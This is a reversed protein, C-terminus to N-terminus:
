EEDEFCPVQIYIEGNVEDVSFKEVNYGNDQICDIATLVAKKMVEFRTLTEKM